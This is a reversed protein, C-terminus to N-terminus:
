LLFVLWNLIFPELTLYGIHFGKEARPPPKDARALWWCNGAPSRRLDDELPLRPSDIKIGIIIIIISFIILRLRTPRICNSHRDFGRLCGGHHTHDGGDHAIRDHLYHPHPGTDAVINIQWGRQRCFRSLWVFLSSFYTCSDYIDKLRHWNTQWNPSKYLTQFM